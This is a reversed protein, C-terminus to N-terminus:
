PDVTNPFPCPSAGMMLFTVETGTQRLIHGPLNDGLRPSKAKKDMFQLNYHRGQRCGLCHETLSFHPLIYLFSPLHVFHHKLTNVASHLTFQSLVSFLAYTNLAPENGRSWQM